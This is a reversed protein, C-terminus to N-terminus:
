LGGRGTLPIAKSKKKGGVIVVIYGCSYTSAVSIISLGSVQHLLLISSPLQTFVELIDLM